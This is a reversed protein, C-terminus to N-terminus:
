LKPLSSWVSFFLITVKEHISASASTEDQISWVNPDGEWESYVEYFGLDSDDVRWDWAVDRRNLELDFTYKASKIRWRTLDNNFVTRVTFISAGTNVEWQNINGKWKAKITGFDEGIRYDWVTWDGSWRMRLDGEIEEDKDDISRITWQSFDNDWTTEMSVIQGNAVYVSLLLFLYSLWHKM